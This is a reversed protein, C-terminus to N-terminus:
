GVSPASHVLCIPEKMHLWGPPHRGRRTGTLGTFAGRAARNCPMCASCFLSRSPGLLRIEQYYLRFAPSKCPRGRMREFVEHHPADRLSADRVMPSLCRERGHGTRGGEGKPSRRVLRSPAARRRPVLILADIAPKTTFLLSDVLGREHLRGVSEPAPRLELQPNEGIM